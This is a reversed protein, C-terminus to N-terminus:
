LLYMVIFSLLSVSILRSSVCLSAMGGGGDASAPGSGGSAANGVASASGGTTRAVSAAGTRNPTNSGTISAPSLELGCEEDLALEDGEVNTVTFPACSFSEPATSVTTTSTATITSPVDTTITSTITYGCNNTARPQLYRAAAAASSTTPSASPFFTLGCDDGLVLSATASNSVTLAPCSFEIGEDENEEEVKTLTRTTTIYSNRSSTSTVTCTGISTSTSTSTSYSTSIYRSTSTSYSTSTYHSTYSSYCNHDTGCYSGAHCCYQGCCTEDLDCARGGECCKESSPYYCGIGDCGSKPPNCCADPLCSGGTQCCGSNNPCPGLSVDCHARPQYLFTTAQLSRRGYGASCRRQRPVLAGGEFDELLDISINSPRGSVVVDQFATVLLADEIPTVLILCLGIAFATKSSSRVRYM